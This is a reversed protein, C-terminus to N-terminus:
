MNSWAAHAREMGVVPQQEFDPPTTPIDSAQTKQKRLGKHWAYGGFFAGYQSLLCVLKTGDLVTKMM